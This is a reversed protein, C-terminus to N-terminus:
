QEGDEDWEPADAAARMATIFEEMVERTLWIGRHDGDRDIRVFVDGLESKFAPEVHLTAPVRANDQWTWGHPHTFEAPATTM